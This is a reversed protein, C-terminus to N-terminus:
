PTPEPIPKIKEIGRPGVFFTEFEVKIEERSKGYRTSDTFTLHHVMDDPRREVGEQKLM